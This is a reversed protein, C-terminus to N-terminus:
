WGKVQLAKSAAKQEAEQKSKGEGDAIKENGIYVAMVFRRDHDPGSEKAVRYIPTVGSVDQAKEQFKSKADIFSEEAVVREIDSMIHQEIFTATPAFGQDLYLAGIFAEMTNALIYQRAKGKDKREGHSLLLFEEMGLKVAVQSLFQANVVASRLATLYGEDKDPYKKYLFVTSALELVADGLFELRENHELAESKNENLFSRHIFAQKLLKKDNFTVSLKQELLSFDM